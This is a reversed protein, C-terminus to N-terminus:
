RAGLHVVYLSAVALARWIVLSLAANVAHGVVRPLRDGVMLM